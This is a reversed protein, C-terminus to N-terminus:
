RHFTWLILQSRFCLAFCQTYETATTAFYVNWTCLSCFCLYMGNITWPHLFLSPLICWWFWEVLCEHSMWCHMAAVFCFCAVWFFQIMQELVCLSICILLDFDVRSINMSTILCVFNSMLFFIPMMILEYRMQELVCMQVLTLPMSAIFLFNERCRLKFTYPLKWHFIWHSVAM